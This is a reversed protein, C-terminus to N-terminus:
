EQSSQSIPIPKFLLPPEVTPQFIQEIKINSFKYQESDKISRFTFQSYLTIIITKIMMKSFEKAMCKNSGVGWPMSKVIRKNREIDDKALEMSERSRTPSFLHSSGPCYKLPPSDLIANFKFQREPKFKDPEEFYKPDRLIDSVPCTITTGKPIHYGLVRDSNKAVRPILRGFPPYLRVLEDFSADLYTMELMDDYTFNEVTHNNRKLVQNIENRIKDEVEPHQIMMYIFSTMISIPSCLSTINLIFYPIIIEDLSLGERDNYSAKAIVNLLSGEIKDDDSCPQVRYYAKMAILKFLLRKSKSEQYNKSFKTPLKYLLPFLFHLFTKPNNHFKDYFATLCELCDEGSGLYVRSMLKLLFKPIDINTSLVRNSPPDIKSKIFDFVEERVIPLLESMTNKSLLANFYIRYFRKAESKSLINLPSNSQNWSRPYNICNMNYIYHLSNLDKIEVVPNWFFWRYYIDGLANTARPKLGFLNFPIDGFIFVPNVGNMVGKIPHVLFRTKRHVLYIIVVYTLYILVLFYIIDMFEM